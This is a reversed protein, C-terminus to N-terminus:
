HDPLETQKDLKSCEQLFRLKCFWDAPGGQQAQKYCYNSAQMFGCIASVSKNWPLAYGMAERATNLARKFEELDHIEKLSDGV